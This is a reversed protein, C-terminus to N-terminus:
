TRKATMTELQGGVLYGGAIAQRRAVARSVCVEDCVCNNQKDWVVLRVLGFPESQFEIRYGM